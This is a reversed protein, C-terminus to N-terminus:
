VQVEEYVAAHSTCKNQISDETKNVTAYAVNESCPVNAQKSRKVTNGVTDHAVNETNSLHSMISSVKALITHSHQMYVTLNIFITHTQFDTYFLM